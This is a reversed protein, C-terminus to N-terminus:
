SLQATPGPGETVQLSADRGGLTIGAAVGGGRLAFETHRHRVSLM